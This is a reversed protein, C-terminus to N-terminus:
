RAGSHRELGDPRPGALRFRGGAGDGRHTASGRARLPPIGGASDENRRRGFSRRDRDRHVTKGGHCARLLPSQFQRARVLLQQRLPRYVGPTRRIQHAARLVRQGYAWYMEPFVPVAPDVPYCDLPIALAGQERLLAPVNSNLVTNYITYPRGLVVVTLVDREAAFALARSGIEICRRDFDAQAERAALWAARWRGGRVGTARALQRCSEQFEPSDLSALGVDIVPSLVRAREPRGLGWRILDPSAQVIPCTKALPESDVRPLHRIMPLFVYDVPEAALRSALGHFLQMPACFPVTAEQIGRRLTTRDAGTHFSLDLGLKRLYTAFFPLLGKLAFEDTLAIRPGDAGGAGSGGLRGMLEGVLAERERFPDPSRDPLKALRTGKDYLACAGGWRFVRREEGVRTTLSDIRCQNGSGGCGVTAQCVFTGKQEVRAALFRAVDLPVRQRWALSRRALLAIGLAGVMGPKPPVIVEVGTQRAVAAALADSAFPMGQCFVVQGVSRSGKVRNLYNQVISDYLGALIARQEVGAAVAEDIVEAMFVSCHQGLSVGHSAALAEGGLQTVDELGAFKGGQEEIFSGTGASCAENMACDIVRGEELRIYKADQGGIEFITDVRRDYHLAGEAHAM